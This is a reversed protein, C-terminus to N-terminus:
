RREGSINSFSERYPKLPAIEALLQDRLADIQPNSQLKVGRNDPDAPATALAEQRVMQLQGFLQQLQLRQDEPLPVEIDDIRLHGEPTIDANPAPARRIQVVQTTVSVRPKSREARAASQKECAALGACLVLSLMVLFIKKM